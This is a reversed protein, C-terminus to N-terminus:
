PLGGDIRTVWPGRFTHRDIYCVAQQPSTVNQITSVKGPANMRPWGWSLYICKAKSTLLCSVIVLVCAWICMGYPQTLLTSTSHPLMPSLFPGPVSRSSFQNGKKRAGGPFVPLLPHQLKKKDRFQLLTGKEQWGKKKESTGGGLFIGTGMKIVGLLARFLTNILSVANTKGNRNIFDPFTPFFYLHTVPNKIAGWRLHM